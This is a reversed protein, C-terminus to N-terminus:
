TSERSAALPKHVCRNAALIRYYTPRSIGANLLPVSCAKWIEHHSETPHRECLSLVLAAKPAQIFPADDRGPRNATVEYGLDEAFMMCIEAGLNGTRSKVVQMSRDTHGTSVYNIGVDARDQRATAGRGLFKNNAKPDYVRRGSNHVAVVAAGTTRAVRRFALMQTNAEPNNNEDTVPYAEMMPDFIVVDYSSTIVLGTIHDLTSLGPKTSACDFFHWNESTGITSLHELLLEDNSEYDLYLVKLPRPPQIGLFPKGEALRYALNHLFVTKGTSTEGVFYTVNGRTIHRGWLSTAGLNSVTYVVKDLVEVSTSITM